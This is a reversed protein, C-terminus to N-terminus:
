EEKDVDGSGTKQNKIKTNRGVHAVNNRTTSHTSLDDKWSTRRRTPSGGSFDQVYNERQHSKSSRIATAQTTPVKRANIIPVERNVNIRSLVHSTSQERVGAANSPRHSSTRTTPFEDSPHSFLRDPDNLISHTVDGQHRMRRQPSKNKELNDKKPLLAPPEWSRVTPEATCPRLDCQDQHYFLDDNELQIGCFECPIIINGESQVPLPDSLLAFRNNLPDSTQDLFTRLDGDYELQHVPSISRKSFSNLVSGPNCGTQHLILDDEPILEECFECPLLFDNSKPETTNNVPISLNRSFLDNTTREHPYKSPSRDKSYFERWRDSKQDVNSSPFENQLSFALLYDSNSSEWGPSTLGPVLNRQVNEQEGGLNQDVQMTQGRRRNDGELSHHINKYFRSQLQRPIRPHSRIHDEGFTTQADFWTEGNDRHNYRSLLRERNVKQDETVKGCVTPHAQLDKVMVNRGCGNCRETRTGCYDEHDSVKNHSLELECYQCQTPRLPCKSVKHAELHRKEMKMNCKCLVQAHETDIHNKMESKPFPERCFTCVDINRKCHIEHITFNAEPIDKKCNGCLRTESETTSAM